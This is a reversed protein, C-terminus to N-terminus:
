MQSFRKLFLITKAWRFGECKGAEVDVNFCVEAKLLCGERQLKEVADLKRKDGKM